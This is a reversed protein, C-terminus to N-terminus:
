ISCKAISYKKSKHLSTSGPNSMETLMNSTLSFYHKTKQLFFSSNQTSREASCCLQKITVTPRATGVRRMLRDWTLLIRQLVNLFHVLEWFIVRTSYLEHSYTALTKTMKLEASFLYHWFYCCWNDERGEERNSALCSCQKALLAHNLDILTM